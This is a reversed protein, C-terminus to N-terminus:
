DGDIDRRALVEERFPFMNGCYETNGFVKYVTYYVKYQSYARQYVNRALEVAYVNGFITEHGKGETLRGCEVSVFDTSNITQKQTTRLKFFLVEESIHM